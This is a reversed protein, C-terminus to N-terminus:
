SSLAPWGGRPRPGAHSVMSRESSLIKGSRATTGAQPTSPITRPIVVTVLWLRVSAGPRVTSSAIPPIVQAEQAARTSFCSFLSSPTAAVTLKAVCVARTLNGAETV